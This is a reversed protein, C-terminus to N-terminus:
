PGSLGHSRGLIFCNVAPGADSALNIIDARDVSETGTIKKSQVRYSLMTGPMAATFSHFSPPIGLVGELWLLETKIGNRDQPKSDNENTFYPKGISGM